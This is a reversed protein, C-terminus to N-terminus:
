VDIVQWNAETLFNRASQCVDFLSRGKFTMSIGEKGNRWGDVSLWMFQVFPLNLYWVEEWNESAKGFPEFEYRYRIVVLNKESWKPSLPIKAKLIFIVDDLEKM